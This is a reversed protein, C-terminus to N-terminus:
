ATRTHRFAGFACTTSDRHQGLFEGFTVALQAGRRRWRAGSGVEVRESKAAERLRRDIERSLYERVMECQQEFSHDRDHPVADLM